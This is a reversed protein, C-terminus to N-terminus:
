CNIERIEKQGLSPDIMLVDELDGWNEQNEPCLKFLEELFSMGGLLRGRGPATWRQGHEIEEERYVTLSLVLLWAQNKVDM